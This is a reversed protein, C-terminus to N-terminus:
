AEGGRNNDSCRYDQVFFIDDFRCGLFKLLRERVEPSPGAKYKDPTKLTSLYAASIRAGKAVDTQSLNKRALIEEFKNKNIFVMM